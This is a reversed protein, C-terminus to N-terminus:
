DRNDDGHKAKFYTCYGDPSIRGEVASCSHPPRFMGCKGCRMEGKPSNRYHADLKTSKAMLM